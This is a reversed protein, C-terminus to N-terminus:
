RTFWSTMGILMRCGECVMIANAIMARESNMRKPTDFIAFSKPGRATDRVSAWAATYLRVVGCFSKIVMVRRKKAEKNMLAIPDRSLIVATEREPANILQQWFDTRGDSCVAFENKIRANIM